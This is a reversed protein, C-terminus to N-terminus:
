AFCLKLYYNQLKRRIVIFKALKPYKVELDFRKILYEGYLILIITITYNIILGNLLLGSFALLEVTSLSDLFEQLNFDTIYFCGASARNITDRLYEMKEISQNKLNECNAIESKATSLEKVSTEEESTLTKGEGKKTQLGELYAQKEKLIKIQTNRSGIQYIEENVNSLYERAQEKDSDNEESIKVVKNYVTDIKTKIQGAENKYVSHYSIGAPIVVLFTDRLLKLVRPSVGSEMNFNEKEDKILVKKIQYIKYEQYLLYITIISFLFLCIINFILRM